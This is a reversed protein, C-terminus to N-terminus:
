SRFPVDVIMLVKVRTMEPIAARAKVEQQEVAALKQRECM